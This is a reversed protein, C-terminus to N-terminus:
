LVTRFAISLNSFYQKVFMPQYSMIFEYYGKPSSSSLFHYKKVRLAAIAM